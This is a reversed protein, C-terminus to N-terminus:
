NNTHHTLHTLIFNLKLMMSLRIVLLGKKKKLEIYSIIRFVKFM